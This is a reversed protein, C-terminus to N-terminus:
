VYFLPQRVILTLRDRKTFIQFWGPKENLTTKQERFIVTNFHQQSLAIIIFWLFPPKRGGASSTM